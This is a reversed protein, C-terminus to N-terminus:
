PQGSALIVYRFELGIYRVENAGSGFVFDTPEALVEHVDNVVGGLTKDALIAARVSSAGTPDLYSEVAKESQADAQRAVVVWLDIEWRDTGRVFTETPQRTPMGVIAAPPSFQGPVTDHVRLGAITDLLTGFGSRIQRVTPAM